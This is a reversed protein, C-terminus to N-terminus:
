QKAAGSAEALKARADPPLTLLADVVAGQVETQMAQLEARIETLRAEIAARDPNPQAVLTALGRRLERMKEIHAETRPRLAAVAAEIRDAGARPLKGELWHLEFRLARPGIGDFDERFHLFATATAGIFFANVALSAVLAVTSWRWRRSAPRLATVSM